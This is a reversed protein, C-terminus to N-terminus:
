QELIIKDLQKKSKKLNKNKIIYDAYKGNKLEGTSICYKCREKIKGIKDGRKFMRYGMRILSTKIFIAKAMDGYHKKLEKVGNIDTIVFVINNNAIKNDVEKKSVCYYNGAYSAQEIKELKDFEEKTVFYYEVGNIEGVRPERTTHSILEIIGNEKLYKGLTTKGSGSAGLLIYIRKNM